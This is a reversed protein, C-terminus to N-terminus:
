IFAASLLFGKPLWFRVNARVRNCYNRTKNGQHMRSLEIRFIAIHSPTPFFDGTSAYTSKARLWDSASAPFDFVSVRHIPMM